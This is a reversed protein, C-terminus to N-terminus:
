ILEFHLISKFTLGSVLFRRTSLKQYQHLCHNPTNFWFSLCCVCFYTSSNWLLFSTHLL